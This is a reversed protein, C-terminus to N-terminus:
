GGDVITVLIAYMTMSPCGFLDLLSIVDYQVITYGNTIKAISLGLPAEGPRHHYTCM